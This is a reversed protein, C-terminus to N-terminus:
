DRRRSRLGVLLLAGLALSWSGADSSWPASACMGGRTKEAVVEPQPAQAAPAAIDPATVLDPAADADPMDEVASMDQAVGLDEALIANLADQAEDTAIMDPAADPVAKPKKIKKPKTEMCLLCDHCVQKMSPQKPNNPNPPLHRMRCCQTPQCTGGKVASCASDAKKNRCESEAPRVIDARAPAPALLLAAPLALCILCPLALRM